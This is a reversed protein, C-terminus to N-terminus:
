KKLGLFFAIKECDMGHQAMTKVDFLCGAEKETYVGEKVCAERCSLDEAKMRALVKEAVEKGKLAEVLKM